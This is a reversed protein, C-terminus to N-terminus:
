LGGPAHCRPQAGGAKQDNGSRNITKSPKTWQKNKEQLCGGGTHRHLTLRAPGSQCSEQVM